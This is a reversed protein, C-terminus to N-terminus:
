RLRDIGEAMLWVRLGFSIIIISSPESLLLEFNTVLEKASFVSM